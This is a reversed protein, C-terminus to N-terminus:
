EKIHSDEDHYGYPCDKNLYHMCTGDDKGQEWLECDFCEIEKEKPTFEDCVYFKSVYQYQWSSQECMCVLRNNGKVKSAYKCDICM